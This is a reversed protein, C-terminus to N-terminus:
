TTNASQQRLAVEAPREASDKCAAALAQQAAQAVDPDARLGIARLGAGAILEPVDGTPLADDARMAIVSEVLRFPLEERPDGAASEIGLADRTASIYLNRLRLRKERFVRFRDDRLEPLQYLSALNWKGAILQATDYYALAYLRVSAPLSRELLAQAVTLTPEVTRSLLVTLIDDKTAFHHYLSAQRIGVADAIARTSTSEFGKRTFLESAADLIEERPTAGHRRQSTLRPRGPGTV